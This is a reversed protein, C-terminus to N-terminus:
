NFQYNQKNLDYGNIYEATKKLRRLLKNRTISDLGNPLPGWNKNYGDLDIADYYACDPSLVGVEDCYGNEKNLCNHCYKYPRNSKMVKLIFAKYNRIIEVDISKTIRNKFRMLFYRLNDKFFKQNSM